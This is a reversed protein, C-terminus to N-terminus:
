IIKSISERSSVHTLKYKLFKLSNAPILWDCWHLEKYLNIYINAFPECNFYIFKYYCLVHDWLIIHKPHLAKHIAWDKNLLSPVSVIVFQTTEFPFSFFVYWSHKLTAHNMSMNAIPNDFTILMFQIENRQACCPNHFLLPVIFHKVYHFVLM